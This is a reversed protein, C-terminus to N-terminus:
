RKGAVSRSSGSPAGDSLRDVALRARLESVYGRCEHQGASQALPLVAGGLEDRSAIGGLVQVETRGPGVNKLSVAVRVRGPGTALKVLPHHIPKWGTVLRGTAEDQREIAWHDDLLVWTGAAFVQAVSGDLTDIVAEGVYVHWDKADGAARAPFPAALLALGCAALLLPVRMTRPPHAM